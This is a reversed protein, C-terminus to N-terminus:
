RRRSGVSCMRRQKGYAIVEELNGATGVRVDAVRDLRLQWSGSCVSVQGQNSRLRRKFEGEECQSGMSVRNEEVLRNM